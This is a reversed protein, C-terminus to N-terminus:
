YESIEVLSIKELIVELNPQIGCELKSIIKYVDEYIELKLKDLDVDFTPVETIISPKQSIPLEVEETYLDPTSCICNKM